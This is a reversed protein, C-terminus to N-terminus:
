KADDKVKFTQCVCLQCGNERSRRDICFHRHYAHGCKCHEHANYKPNRARRQGNFNDEYVYPPEIKAAKKFPWM